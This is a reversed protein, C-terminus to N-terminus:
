QVGNGLLNPDELPPCEAEFLYCKFQCFVVGKQYIGYPIESSIFDSHPGYFVPFQYFTYYKKDYKMIFFVLESNVSQEVRDNILSTM